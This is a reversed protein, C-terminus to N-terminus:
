EDSTSHRRPLRAFAGELEDRSGIITRGHAASPPAADTWMVGRPYMLWVDWAVPRWEALEDREALAAGVVRAEDWFHAARSDVIEDRPWRDRVDTWVMTFWVVQVAVDRDPYAALVHDQV